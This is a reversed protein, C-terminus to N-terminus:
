PSSLMDGAALSYLLREYGTYFYAAMNISDVSFYLCWLDVVGPRRRMRKYVLFAM